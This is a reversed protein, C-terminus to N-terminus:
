RDEQVYNIRPDNRLQDLLQEDDTDIIFMYVYPLHQANGLAPYASVLGQFNVNEKYRGIYIM